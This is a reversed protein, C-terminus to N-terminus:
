SKVLKYGRTVVTIIHYPSSQSKLKGRLRAILRDIAWDSIGLDKSEAWVAEIIADRECLEGEHEKLFTFLLHEKKTFEKGMTATMSLTGLYQSFLSSFFDSKQGHDVVMGTNWLYAGSVRQESTVSNGQKITLVLEKETKTLSEFLEESQLLIQEDSSLLEVFADRTKPLVKEERLRIIALQLYQVYGGSFEVLVKKTEENFSTHYESQLTDVIADMDSGGAPALYMDRSFISLSPKKFVDPALDPLPRFSTFVYSMKQKVADRLGLINGFFEPTAVDSIRDFRLLFLTPYQGGTVLTELVKRVSDVTFFQDKLQISQVFLKRCTRKDSESLRSRQVSDVLRTLLLTWFASINREVLDNLDVHVFLQDLGNRIYTKVVDDHYMFFRLFNSIGVRKMGVLVVSHHNKLHQGLEEAESKRFTIPYEEEIIRKM